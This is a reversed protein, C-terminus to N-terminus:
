KKRLVLFIVRSLYDFEQYNVSLKAAIENIASDYSPEEPKVVLPHVVRSLFDYLGFYRRDEITFYRSLFALTERERFDLNHWVRPMPDLGVSKRIRNLKARGDARGEVFIFRGGRKIVSAIQALAKKQKEFSGLNILCRESIVTDFFGLLSPNLELVDCQVFSPLGTKKWETKETEARARAVMENSYDMGVIERCREAFIRTSYGNGCGVDLVRDKNRLYNCITEIELWRQWIDKHTVQGPLIDTQVAREDWFTRIRSRKLQPGKM